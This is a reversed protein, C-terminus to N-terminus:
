RSEGHREAYRLYELEAVSLPPGSVEHARAMLREAEAKDVGELSAAAELLLEAHRHAQRQMVATQKIRDLEPWTPAEVVPASAPTVSTTRSLKVSPRQRATPTVRILERRGIRETKVSLAGQKQLSYLLHTVEHTGVARSESADARLLEIIERVDWPRNESRVVRLVRSKLSREGKRAAAREPRKVMDYTTWYNLGTEEAIERPTKGGLALRRVTDRTEESIRTGTPM